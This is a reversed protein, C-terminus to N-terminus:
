QRGVGLIDEGLAAKVAHELETSCVQGLSEMFRQWVRQLACEGQDAKSLLKM